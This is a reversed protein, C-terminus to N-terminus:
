GLVHCGFVRRVSLLAGMATGRHREQGEVWEELRSVDEVCSGTFFGGVSLAQVLILRLAFKKYCYRMKMGEQRAQIVMVSRAM